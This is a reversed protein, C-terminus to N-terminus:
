FDAKVAKVMILIDGGLNAKNGEEANVRKTAIMIDMTDNEAKGRSISIGDKISGGGFQKIRLRSKDMTRQDTQDKNRKDKYMRNFIVNYVDPDSRFSAFLEDDTMNANEGKIFSAGVSLARNFAQYAKDENAEQAAKKARTEREFESRENNRYSWMVGCTVLLVVLIGLCIALETGGGGGGRKRGKPKPEEAAGRQSGRASARASARAPPSEARGSARGSARASQRGSRRTAM